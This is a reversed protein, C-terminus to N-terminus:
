RTGRSWSLASVSSLLRHRRTGDGNMVFTGGASDSSFAVKKGDPSWVPAYYQGVCCRSAFLLRKAQGSADMTWVESTFAGPTGPTYAYLLHAGDPSWSAHYPSSGANGSLLLRTLHSGDPRVSYIGSGGGFVIKSGDPSWDPEEPGEGDLSALRRPASAGDADVAFLGAAFSYAITKGDPSWEPQHGTAPLWRLKGNAVNITVLGNRSFVIRTGDPSWALGDEGGCDGSCTSLRRQFSGDANILFLSAKPGRCNTACGPGSGANGRLFAIQTGQPSWAFASITCPYICPALITARRAGALM